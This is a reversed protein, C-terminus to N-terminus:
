LYHKYKNALALKRINIQIAAINLWATSSETTAEFDRALRRNRSLWGFTREVVWRRPLLKFGTTDDSRRIIDLRWSGLPALAAKLKDGAYGADAFIHRLKPALKKLTTIVGPAGDRDQINAPHVIASILGGMTDTIIHRKRGKIRKGADYGLPGGSETTKVSQSDIVGATPQANRGARIRILKVLDRQILGWLGSDRWSYFYHQVTTMPPFDKPIMRWTCGNRVMYMLANMITRLKWKRPRGQRYAIPLHPEFVLWEEDTLDTAYGDTKRAYRKRATKTWM